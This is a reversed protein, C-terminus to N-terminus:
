ILKGRRRRLFEGIECESCRTKICYFWYLQLMGQHVSANRRPTRGHFLDREMTQTVRNDAGPPLVDCLRLVGERVERDRFTRAYLLGVPLIVNILIERVRSVGLPTVAGTVPHDFSVHDKWFGNGPVVLADELVGRIRLGSEGSKLTQIVTRFLDKELIAQALYPVAALRVSPFNFPRTPSFTWDSPHIIEGRFEHRLSRWATDLSEAYARSEEERLSAPNPILGAPGFLLAELTLRGSFAQLKRIHRLTVSRALRVFPDRNKNYGLGELLGEYLLQDWIDRRSLERITPEHPPPIEGPPGDTHPIEGLGASERVFSSADRALEVLREHFRRIKLELRQAALKRLWSDVLEQPLDTAADACRITFARRSREDLIAQQWVSQISAPLFDGLILTPITRGSLTLVDAHGPSRELVVHLIVRNYRPDEQHQHQLWDLTTRHIEVDGNYTIDGIIVKARLFDPGSDTNLRGPSCVRVRRGDVVHLEARSLYQNNWIHRLFREHISHFRRHM